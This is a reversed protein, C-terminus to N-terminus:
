EANMFGAPTGDFEGIKWLEGNKQIFCPEFWRLISCDGRSVNDYTDSIDSTVTSGQDVNVSWIAGVALEGKYV